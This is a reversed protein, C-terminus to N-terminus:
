GFEVVTLRAGYTPDSLAPIRITPTANPSQYLALSLALVSGATTSPIKSESNLNVNKLYSPSAGGHGHGGGEISLYTPGAGYRIAAYVNNSNVADDVYANASAFAVLVSNTKKVTYGLSLVTAMPTTQTTSFDSALVATAYGLIGKYTGIGTYIPM